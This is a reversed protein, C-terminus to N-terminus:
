MHVAYVTLKPIFYPLANCTAHQEITGEKVECEEQIHRVINAKCKAPVRFNYYFCQCVFFSYYSFVYSHAIHISFEIQFM